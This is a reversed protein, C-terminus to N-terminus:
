QRLDLEKYLKAYDYKNQLYGEKDVIYLLENLWCMNYAGCGYEQLEGDRKFEFIYQQGYDDIGVDVKINNLTTISGIYEEKKM